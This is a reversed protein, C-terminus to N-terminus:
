ASQVTKSQFALTHTHPLACVLVHCESQSDPSNLLMSFHGCTASAAAVVAEWRHSAERKHKNVSDPWGSTTQPVLVVRSKEVAAADLTCVALTQLGLLFILFFPPVGQILLLGRSRYMYDDVESM